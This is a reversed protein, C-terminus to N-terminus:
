APAEQHGGQLAEAKASPLVTFAARAFPPLQVLAEEVSELVTCAVNGPPSCQGPGLSCTGAVVFTGGKGAVGLVTDRDHLLLRMVDLSSMIFTSAPYLSIPCRSGATDIETCAAAAATGVRGQCDARQAEGEVDENEEETGQSGAVL